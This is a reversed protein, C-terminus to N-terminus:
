TTDFCGDFSLLPNTFTAGYASHLLRPGVVAAPGDAIYCGNSRVQVEYTVAPGPGGTAASRIACVWDSGAGRSPGSAGTRSCSATARLGATTAPVGLGTQQVAYLHGFEPGIAAELRASTVPQASCGATLGAALLGALGGVLPARRVVPRRSREAM